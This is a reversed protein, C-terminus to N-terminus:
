LNIILELQFLALVSLTKTLTLIVQLITIVFVSDFFYFVSFALARYVSYIACLCPFILVGQAKKYQVSLPTIRVRKHTQM